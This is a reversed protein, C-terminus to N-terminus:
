RTVTIGEITDFKPFVVRPDGFAVYVGVAIVTLMLGMSVLNLSRRPAATSRYSTGLGPVDDSADLGGIDPAGGLTESM